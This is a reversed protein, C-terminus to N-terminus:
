GGASQRPVPNIHDLALSSWERGVEVGGGLGKLTKIIPAKFCVREPNPSSAPAM